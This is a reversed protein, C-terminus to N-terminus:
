DPHGGTLSSIWLPHRLQGGLFDVSLDIEDRDVEPLARHVLRIDAWSAAQPASIDNQLSINVHETKRQKIQETM